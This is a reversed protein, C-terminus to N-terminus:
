KGVFKKQLRSVLLTSLINLTLIILILVCATAYAEKIYLGEGALIYLAVALSTGSGLYGTRPVGKLSAGMTFMLPASESIVRGVALITAALIGPMASPIVVKFITRAKGAGLAFSGERYSQPVMKLSEETSRCIVPIIMIAVTLSGALVSTGLKLMVCFFVMGFLGYVISPIGSLIELAGRIIKIFKNGKKTYESLFVATCIGLPLAIVMSLAILMITVVISPMITPDEGYSFNRSILDWTINPVGKVFIFVVITILATVAVITCVYCLITKIQIIVKNRRNLLSQFGERFRQIDRKVGKMVQKFKSEKKINDVRNESINSALDSLNNTSRKRQIKKIFLGLKNKGEVKESSGRRFGFLTNM